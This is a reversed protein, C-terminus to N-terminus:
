LSRGGFGANRFLEQKVDEPSVISQHGAAECCSAQLSFDNFSSIVCQQIDLEMSELKALTSLLLGPYAACCMEIRTDQNKREVEFKTPNRVQKAMYNIQNLNEDKMEERLKNIKELLEKMYDITDGLISTRDMKSIKPVISRLMSLRDNLRKRRRREAMLNKSPQGDIKKGKGKRERFMNQPDTQVAIDVCGNGLITFDGDEFNPTDLFTDLFPQSEYTYNLEPPSILGLLSPNSSSAAFDPTQDFPSFTSWANPILFENMETPFNTWSDRNPAMLEELINEETIEM